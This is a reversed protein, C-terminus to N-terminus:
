LWVRVGAMVSLASPYMDDATVGDLGEQVYQDVAVNYSFRESPRWIVKVGYGLASMESVRYDSSYSVPDGAFQTDYFDAESQVYYRLAPSVILTTGIKQYWAFGATHAGIGFSDNYFRYSLEVAGNLTGIYRNLAMYLVQKDKSDPRRESVLTGNLEVVKYPDTLYGDTMGVTANLTLTTKKNLVQLVGVMMDISDKTEPGAMTVADVEDNAYSAGLTLTTNKQNFDVSDRLAIGRSIYDSEQSYAGQFVLTHRGLRKALELNLGFREDEVDARPAKGAKDYETVTNAATTSSSGGSSGAPAASPTAAPTPAPATPTAGAKAYYPGSSKGFLRNRIKDEEDEDEDEDEDEYEDDDDNFDPVVPAPVFTTGGGGSQTVTSYYTTNKLPPAGSPTAGSISNYIGDIKITLTPSLEHEVMFTPSIIQMRHDSEQYYLAKLDVRDESFARRPIALFLFVAAVHAVIWYRLGPTNSTNM